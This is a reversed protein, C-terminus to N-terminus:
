EFGNRLLILPVLRVVGLSSPGGAVVTVNSIIQTQYGPREITMVYTGPALDTLQFAGDSGSDSSSETELSPTITAGALAMDADGFRTDVRIQGNMQGLTSASVLEIDDGYEASENGAADRYVASVAVVGPRPLASVDINLVPSYAIWGTDTGDPLSLRMQMNNAPEGDISLLAQVQAASTRPAASDLIVSGRPATADSRATDCVTDSAAANIFGSASSGAQAVLQYCYNQGQVLNRDVYVGGANSADVTAVDVFPGEPLSARKVIIRQQGAQADFRLTHALGPLPEVDEHDSIQHVIELERIRGIGDDQANLPSRGAALESGDSEGGEDTDVDCPDSGALYESLSNAGDGDRDLGADNSAINLCRNRAEYRDPMGDADGDSASTERQVAFDGRAYLTDPTGVSGFEFAVEVSYSGREGPLAPNDDFRASSPVARV